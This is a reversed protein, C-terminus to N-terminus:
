LPLAPSTTPSLPPHHPYSPLSTPPTSSPALLAIRLPSIPFHFPTPASSHSHLSCLSPLPPLSPSLLHFPPVPSSPLSVALFLPLPSRPPPFFTSSSSSSSPSSPLSLLVLPLFFPSPSHTTLPAAVECDRQHGIVCESPRSLEVKFTENEEMEEDDKIQISLTAFRQYPKFVLQGRCAVYDRGATASGDVTAFCVKVTQLALLALRHLWSLGIRGGEWGSHRGEGEGEENRGENRDERM